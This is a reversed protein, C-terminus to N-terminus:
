WVVTFSYAKDDQTFRLIEPKPSEESRESHCAVGHLNNWLLSMCLNTLNFVVM